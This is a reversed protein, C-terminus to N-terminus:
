RLRLTVIEYPKLTFTVTDYAVTLEEQVEELLNVRWAQAIPFGARLTVPGRWRRCEYLRVIVGDGDEAQKVTEIVANAADVQVFPGIAARSGTEPSATQTVLLPDNLGYAAAITASDWPGAHPLLRYAFRQEGQDAEPDPLTPSRLLTIRLVNDHV